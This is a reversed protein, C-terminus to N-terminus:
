PSQRVFDRGEYSPPVYGHRSGQVWVIKKPGPIANWMKAIGAPPCTYDGLGARAVTTECTVPIRKAFNVADYYDLGEAWPVYWGDGSLSLAPNKRLRGNTYIDCCWTIRSETKTVGEGCAAAWITQLGGQSGGAAFLDRGNWGPLTKLYQLARKVRLVMGNFYSTEPDENQAVDFAYSCDHSRAQWRFAKMDALTAGFAKLPMGHANISLVIEGDRYRRDPVDQAAISADYGRTELRCPYKRDGADPPMTLFGTVPRLGACRVQVAYIGYGADDEGLKKREGEVPVLDLRAFQRKWFEDFDAPEPRGVLRDIEAGAGGDFFVYGDQYTFRRGDSRRTVYAELRVFGPRDISTERVFPEATLPVKGEECRGDDGSRKWSLDFGDPIADGEFDQLALTFVMKEGVRYSVPDKDTTGRIWARDLPHAQVAFAAALAVVFAVRTREM